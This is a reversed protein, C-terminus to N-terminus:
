RFSKGEFVVPTCLLDLRDIPRNGYRDLLEKSNLNTTIILLKSLRECEDVLRSFPEYKVGYENAPPEEGVDDVIIVPHQMFNPNKLEESLKWAKVPKIRFRYENMYLVPLILTAFVTKLRGSNGSLILGQRPNTMWFCLLEYESQWNLKNITFDVKPAIKLILEKAEETSKALKFLPIKGRNQIVGAENCSLIADDINTAGAKKM